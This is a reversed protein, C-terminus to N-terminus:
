HTLPLRSEFRSIALHHPVVPGQETLGRELSQFSLDLYLLHNYSEWTVYSGVASIWGGPLRKWGAEGLEGCVRINQLVLSRHLLQLEERSSHTPDLTDPTFDSIEREFDHSEKPARAAQPTRPPRVHEHLILVLMEASLFGPLLFRPSKRVYSISSIKCPNVISKAVSIQVYGVRHSM